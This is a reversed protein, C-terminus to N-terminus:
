VLRATKHLHAVVDFISMRDSPEHKWCQEMIEVLRHEIIGSGTRYRPDIFPPNGAMAAKIGKDIDGIQYHPTLGTLITYLLKGFTYVEASEDIMGGEMEEPARRIGYQASYMKCYQNNNPNWYINRAKNLDSMKILGDKKSILFQDFGLDHNIIVGERNGHLEAISEAMALAIELRENSTYQNMPIVDSDKQNKDHMRRLKNRSFEKEEYPSIYREFPEGPEVLVSTACYAYLDMTRNSSSTQIMALVEMQTQAFAYNNYGRREFMRNMKMAGVSSGQDDNVMFTDRFYGHGLYYIDFQQYNNQNGSRRDISSMYEHFNNCVPYSVYSWKPRYCGDASPYDLEEYHEFRGPLSPSVDYKGLSAEIDDLQQKKIKSYVKDDHNRIKRAFNNKQNNDDNDKATSTIFGPRDSRSNRTSLLSLGDYNPTRARRTDGVGQKKPQMAYVGQGRGVAASFMIPSKATIALNGEGPVFYSDISTSYNRNHNWSSFILRSSIIVTILPLLCRLFTKWRRAKENAGGGRSLQLLLSLKKKKSPTSTRAAAPDDLVTCTSDGSGGSSSSCSGTHATVPCAAVAAKRDYQQQHSSSFATPRRRPAHQPGPLEVM